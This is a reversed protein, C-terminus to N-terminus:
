QVGTSSKQLQNQLLIEVKLKRNIVYSELWQNNVGCIGCSFLKVLLIEHCVSYVATALKCFIEQRNESSLRLFCIKLKPLFPKKLLLVQELDLSSQHWYM